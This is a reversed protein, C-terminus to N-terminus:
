SKNKVELIKLLNAHFKLLDEVQMSAGCAEKHGGCTGEIGEMAKLAITRVDKKGRIAVNVKAGKIFAVVIICDPYLYLLENALLGSISLEGGYQFFLLKGKKNKENAVEKAKELLKEYKKNIQKYRAHISATKPTIDLIEYPTKIAILNKLMKVVVTTRDMLAFNLMKIIKGFETKYLIKGADDTYPFIDPYKKSFETAFEPIYWDALCGLMAIWEDEQKKTAKHCLYAVPERAESENQKPNFYFVNEEDVKAVEHHDIWVIPISLEHCADRFGKDILAKDLVFVYDPKLEHLKRVYNVSLSPFSKIAVGKGKGCARRLLLFSALGDVDNDFFFLPNQAKEIFERIQELQKETLM